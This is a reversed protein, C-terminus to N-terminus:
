QRPIRTYLEFSRARQRETWSVNVTVEASKAGVSRTLTITEAKLNTLAPPTYSAISSFPLAKMQELVYQADNVAKILNNNAENLILSNVYLTLLGLIAILLISAAIMLESLTFGSILFRRRQELGM